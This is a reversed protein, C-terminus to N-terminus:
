EHQGGKYFVRVVDALLVFCEVFACIGLAYAIPYFPLGLTLTSDGTRSFSAGLKTLNFGIILFLAMAMVRTILDVVIRGRPLNFVLIDVSIHMKDWSTRPLAFGIMFAAGISVMDFSGLIPHRLYRLVVDSSTLLMILVLATGAVCDMAKTVIRMVSLYRKMAEGGNTSSTPSSALGGGVNPESTM